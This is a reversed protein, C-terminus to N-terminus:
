EETQLYRNHDIMHSGCRARVSNKTPVSHEEVGPNARDNSASAQYMM